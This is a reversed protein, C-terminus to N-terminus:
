AEHAGECLQRESEREGFFRRDFDLHRWRRVSRDYIAWTRWGCPCRHKARRRRLTVVIAEPDFVVNQVSAGPLGLMKNFATTVRM